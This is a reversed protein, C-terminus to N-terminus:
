LVIEGIIKDGCYAIIHKIAKESTGIYEEIEQYWACSNYCISDLDRHSKIPCFIHWKGAMLRANDSKDRKLKRMM